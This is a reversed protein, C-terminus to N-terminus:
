SSKDTAAYPTVAVLTRDDDFTERSFDLARAFEFLSPPDPGTFLERFLNGVGGSGSGLPDGFGDTGLLLVDDLGIEIVRAELEGPVQPLGAVASSSIGGESVTKGGLVPTFQGERLLWAGSDGVSVVSAQLGAGGSGEIVACLLTTSMHNFAMEPDPEDLKFTIRAQEALAWAANKMLALWDTDHTAAPANSVFWRAASSVAATAGLHSQVSQSVGDAVLVVVRGDPLQHVAFDDQRPASNYRHFHGRLSAGRVTLVDNSWGDVVTDPRFPFSRYKEGTLRPEVTPSAKGVVIQALRVSGVVEAIPPSSSLPGDGRDSLDATSIGTPPTRELASAAAEFETRTSTARDESREDPTPWSSNRDDSDIQDDVDPQYIDVTFDEANSAPDAKGAPNSDQSHKGRRAWGRGRAASM